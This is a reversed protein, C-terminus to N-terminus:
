ASSPACPKSSHFLSPVSAPVTSTFSTRGPAAPCAASGRPPMAPVVPPAMRNWAVSPALWPSQLVSPVAAPVLKTLAGGWFGALM